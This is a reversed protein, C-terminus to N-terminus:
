AFFTGSFVVLNTLHLVKPRRVLRREFDCGDLLISEMLPRNSQYPNNISFTTDRTSPTHFSNSFLVRCSSLSVTALPRLRRLLLFPHNHHLPLSLILFNPNQSLCSLLDPQWNNLSFFSIQSHCV